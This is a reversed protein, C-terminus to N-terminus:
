EGAGRDGAQICFLGRCSGNEGKGEHQIVSQCHPCPGLGAPGATPFKWIPGRLRPLGPGEAPGEGEACGASMLYCQDTKPPFFLGVSPTLQLGERWAQRDVSVM